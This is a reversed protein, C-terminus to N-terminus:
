VNFFSLSRHSQNMLENGKEVWSDKEILLGFRKNYGQEIVNGASHFLREKISTEKSELAKYELSCFKIGAM